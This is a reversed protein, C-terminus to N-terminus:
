DFIFTGAKQSACLKIVMKVYNPREIKNQGLHHLDADERRVQKLGINIYTRDTGIDEL